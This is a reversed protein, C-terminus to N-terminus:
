PTSTGGSNGGMSPEGESITDWVSVEVKREEQAEVNVGTEAEYAGAARNHIVAQSGAFQRLIRQVGEMRTNSLERNHQATGTTSAHGVLNIPQGGSQILERTQPSLSNYWDILQQEQGNSVRGQGPQEFLVEHHRLQSIPRITVEGRSEIRPVQISIRFRRPYTRGGQQQEVTYGAGATRTHVTTSAINVIAEVYNEAKIADVSSLYLQNTQAGGQELVVPLADAIVLQGNPSVNIPWNIIASEDYEINTWPFSNDIFIHAPLYMQLTGETGPSATISVTQGDGFNASGADRGNVWYTVRPNLLVESNDEAGFVRLGMGAGPTHVTLRQIHFNLHQRQVQKLVNSNLLSPKRSRNMERELGGSLTSIISKSCGERGTQQVVHTLEHATLELNNPSRGEGFYIDSGHTFAQAGVDQNMQVADNGTHVRVGSFDAGFRPEMYDRVSDPLPSGNGKNHNIRSEVDDGAEFSDSMSGTSKAQIPEEEEEVAEPQRQIFKRSINTAFKAQVPIDKDEEPSIERQVSALRAQVPTENDEENSIKRQVFPTISAVLPKTQLMNEQDDEPPMNRQMSNAVAADPISMVQRAVRDAEQEYQDDAAGVTLKRQLGTIEGLPSLRKAQILRSIQQNGLTDHLQTIPHANRQSSQISDSKDNRYVRNMKGKGPLENLLQTAM